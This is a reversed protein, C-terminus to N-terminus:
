GSDATEGLHILAERLATKAQLLIIADRARGDLDGSGSTAGIQTLGDAPNAYKLLVTYLQLADSCENAREEMDSLQAMENNPGPAALEAKRLEDLLKYFELLKNTIFALERAKLHKPERLKRAYDATFSLHKALRVFADMAESGRALKAKKLREEELFYLRSLVENPEDAKHRVAGILLILKNDRDIKMLTQQWRDEPRPADVIYEEAALCATALITEM